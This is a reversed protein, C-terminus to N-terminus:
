GSEPRRHYWREFGAATMIGDSTSVSSKSMGPHTWLREAERRRGDQRDGSPTDPMARRVLEVNTARARGDKQIEVAFSVEDGTRLDLGAANISGVFIDPQGDYRM